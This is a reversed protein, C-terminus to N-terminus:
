RQVPSSYTGSSTKMMGLVSSSKCKAEELLWKIDDDTVANAWHKEFMQRTKDLGIEETWAKVAELESSGSAGEPFMSPHLWKELVYISGLNTGHHYRYRTIDLPTPDQIQSPQDQHMGKFQGQPTGPHYSPQVNPPPHSARPDSNLLGQVEGKAKKFFGKM